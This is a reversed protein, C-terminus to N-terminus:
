GLSVGPFISDSDSGLDAILPEESDPWDPKPVPVTREGLDVPENEPLAVKWYGGLPEGSAAFVELNLEEGLRDVPILFRGDADTVSWTSWAEVRGGVLPTGGEIVVRGGVTLVSFPEMREVQDNLEDLEFSSLLLGGRGSVLLDISSWDPRAAFDLAFTGDPRTFAWSVADDDKSQATVVLGGVPRGAHDLVQGSLRQGPEGEVTPESGAFFTPSSALQSQLKEIISADVGEREAVELFLESVQFSQVDEVLDTLTEGQDDPVELLINGNARDVIRM